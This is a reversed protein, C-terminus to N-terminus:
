SVVKVSAARLLQNKFTYGTRLVEAVEPHEREEGDSEQMLAEHYEPDFPAGIGPVEELGAATLAGLLQQHVLEVGKALQTDSSVAAAQLAFGFNDLVELLGEVVAAAGRDRAEAVERQRRKNLNDYDARGRLVQNNLEDREAVLAAAEEPSLDPAPSTQAADTDVTAEVDPPTDHEPTTSEEVPSPEPNAETNPGPNADGAPGPDDPAGQTTDNTPDSM